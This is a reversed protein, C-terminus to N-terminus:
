ILFPQKNGILPTHSLVHKVREEISKPEAPRSKHGHCLPHGSLRFVAAFLLLPLIVYLATKAARGTRRGPGPKGAGPRTQAVPGPLLTDTKMPEQLTIAKGPSQIRRQLPPQSEIVKTRGSDQLSRPEPLSPTSGQSHDSSRRHCIRPM